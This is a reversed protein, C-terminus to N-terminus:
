SHSNARSGQQRGECCELRAGGGQLLMCLDM